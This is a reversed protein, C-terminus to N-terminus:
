ARKDAENMVIGDLVDEKCSRSSGGVLGVVLGDVLWWGGVVKGVVVVGWWKGENLVFHSRKWELSDGHVFVIKRKDFTFTLNSVM